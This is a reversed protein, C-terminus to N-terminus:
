VRDFSYTTELLVEESTISDMFEADDANNTVLDIAMNKAETEDPADVEIEYTTRVTEVIKVKILM